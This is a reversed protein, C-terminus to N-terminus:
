AASHTNLIKMEHNRLARFELAMRGVLIWTTPNDLMLFADLVPGQLKRGIRATGM